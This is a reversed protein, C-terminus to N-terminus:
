VLDLNINHLAINPTIDLGWFRRAVTEILSLGV